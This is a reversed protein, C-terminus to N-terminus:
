VYFKPPSTEGKPICKINKKNIEDNEIDLYGSFGQPAQSKLSQTIKPWAISCTELYGTHIFNVFRFFPDFPGNITILQKNVKSFTFLCQHWLSAVITHKLNPLGGM